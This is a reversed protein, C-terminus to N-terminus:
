SWHPGPESPWLLLRKAEIDAQVVDKKVCHIGTVVMWHQNWFMYMEISGAASSQGEFTM